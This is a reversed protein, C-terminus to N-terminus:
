VLVGHSTPKTLPCTPRAKIARLESRLSERTLVLTQREVRMVRVRERYLLAAASQSVASGGFASPVVWFAAALPGAGLFMSGLVLASSVVTAISMVISMRRAMVRNNEMSMIAADHEAIMREVLTISKEISRGDVRDTTINQQIPAEYRAPQPTNVRSVSSVHAVRM